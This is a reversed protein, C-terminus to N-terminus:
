PNKNDRIRFYKSLVEKREDPSSIILKNKNTGETITLTEGSLTVRGVPTAITCLLKQTFHSDTSTQQYDCMTKFESLDRITTTFQFESIWEGEIKKQFFYGNPVLPNRKIQFTGSVDEIVEGSLPLPSRVSDGFGVDVLYDKDLHVILAMHDFEPGFVGDANAVQGSIMHVQFGLEQLLWYFLGNLEYCFGGRHQKVIKDFFNEFGLVIRKGQMIDLNEFPVTLVHQNQLQSLFAHDANGCHKIELRQLYADINM